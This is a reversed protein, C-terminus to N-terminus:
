IHERRRWCVVFLKERRKFNGTVFRDDRIPSSALFRESDPLRHHTGVSIQSSSSSATANALPPAEASAIHSEQSRPLSVQLMRILVSRDTASLWIYVPHQNQCFLNDRRQQLVQCLFVGHRVLMHQKCSQRLILFVRLDNRWSNDRCRRVAGM